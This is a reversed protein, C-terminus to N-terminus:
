AHRSEAAQLLPRLEEPLDPSNRWVAAITLIVAWAADASPGPQGAELEAYLQMSLRRVVDYVAQSVRPVEAIASGAPHDPEGRFRIAISSAHYTRGHIFDRLACLQDITPLCPQGLDHATM